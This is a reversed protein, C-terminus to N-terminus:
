IISFNKPLVDTKKTPDSIGRNQVEPLMQGPNRLWPLDRAHISGRWYAISEESEGKTHCRRHLGADLGLRKSAQVQVHKYLCQHTEFGNDLTNHM